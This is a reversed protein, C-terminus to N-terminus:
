QWSISSFDLDWKAKICNSDYVDSEGISACPVVRLTEKHHDLWYVTQLYHDTRMPRTLFLIFLSTM